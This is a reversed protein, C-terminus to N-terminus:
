QREEEPLRIEVAVPFIQVEGRLSHRRPLVFETVRQQEEKLYELLEQCREQRRRLEDELNALEAEKDRLMEVFLHNQKMEGLLKDREKELKQLTTERVSKEVEKFRTKFLEKQEKVANKKVASVLTKVEKTLKIKRKKIFTQLDLYVEDWIETARSKDTESVTSSSCLDLGPPVHPFPDGLEGGWVPFRVTRTWHHFPERLENVALEETTLLLVADVGSPVEGRRVTWRSASTQDHGGTFRAKAFTALTHKLAPHGLHLLVSDKIPRFVPREGIVKVFAEPRFVMRPLPGKSTEKSRLRLTDDIVSEWMPPLPFLFRVFGEEETEELRPLGFGTGLAIEFTKRLAEPSLDLERCLEELKKQEEEGAIKVEARPVVTKGSKMRIDHDLEDMVTETQELDQFRREFAADFIEGMSGLEERIDHVKRVVHGIFKLDADDESTFHYVFVDRAQGHRDLRGNRQELRSPNWPIEFHFIFRATEQLNLGESATDTAILVRVPSDPDNFAAKIEEREIQNMQGYLVRIATGDDEFIEKLRRELYDLTTKYETFVTLREDDRWKKGARLRRKILDVLRDLRADKVPPSLTDGDPQIELVKLCKDIENIEQELDSLLPQMWAGVTRAAHLRRHEREEDDFIEEECARKAANVEGAEALEREKLGEKLRYWSEGFTSPSSLLRKSLVEMAFFGAQQEPRKSSAVFAKVKNRFNAVAASLAREEPEFYLPVPELHRDAFRRPKEAEDDLENVERKLRRIVIDEVRRKEEDTFESTQSFRVPDLQELLGSFCRTHGNHPTATLFLKHEFWPTLVRLMKALNSDEGFNSPMLNHAEDVILLDWPLQSFQGVMPEQPRCTSMLQELIDPQRLYHYSTIIRPFTRWPNVDLGLRKQLAHTETRDVIDFSLSFKDRMEQQWQQRLSAPCVILVRQIRRRMLLETVILGAEVTKGLGVDDALLLSVRPMQLAKLLPVLQFDEIQLAGFFPSAVPLNTLKGSGDPSLFPTITSWRTGRVLADFEEPPMSPESGIQPMAHPELLDRGHEREWLLTEEPVGDSDTYEVRVLHLRGDVKSDHPEVSVVVGRRNRVTALMGVRPVTGRSTDSNEM